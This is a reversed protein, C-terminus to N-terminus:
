DLDEEGRALRDTGRFTMSTSNLSSERTDFCRRINKTANWVCSFASHALPVTRVSLLNHRSCGCHKSDEASDIFHGVIAWKVIRLVYVWGCIPGSYQSNEWDQKGVGRFHRAWATIRCFWQFYM